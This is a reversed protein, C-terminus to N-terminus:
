LSAYNERLHLGQTEIPEGTCPDTMEMAVLFHRGTLDSWLAWKHRSKRLGNLDTHRTEQGKYM